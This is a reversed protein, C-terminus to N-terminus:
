IPFGKPKTPVRVRKWGAVDAELRREFQPYDVTIEGRIWWGGTGDDRRGGEFDNGILRLLATFVDSHEGGPM